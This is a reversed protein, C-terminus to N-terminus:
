TEAHRERPSSRVTRLFFRGMGFSLKAGVHTREGLAVLPGWCALNGTLRVGGLFGGFSVAQDQSRSYRRWERTSLGFASGSPAPGLEEIPPLRLLSARHRVAAEQLREYLRKIFAEVPFRQLSGPSAKRHLVFGDATLHLPAVLAIDVVSADGRLLAETGETLGETTTMGAVAVRGRSDGLGVTDLRALADGVVGLTDCGHGILVVSFSFPEGVQYRQSDDLPPEVVLAGRTGIVREEGTLAPLANPELLWPFCCNSLEGVRPCGRCEEREPELCVLRHICRAIATRLASGKYKPVSLPSSAYAEVEIRVSRFGRAFDRVRASPSARRVIPDSSRSIVEASEGSEAADLRPFETSM